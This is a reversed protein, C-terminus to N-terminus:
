KGVPKTSCGPFSKINKLIGPKVKRLAEWQVGNKTFLKGPSLDNLSERTEAGPAGPRALQVSLCSIACRLNPEEDSIKQRPFNKLIYSDECEVPRLERRKKSSKDLQFMGVADSNIPNSTNTGCSSEDFALAMLVWIWFREKEAYSLKKEYNPCYLMVDMPPTKIFHGSMVSKPKKGEEPKANSRNTTFESFFELARKGTVGLSCDNKFFKECAASPVPCNPNIKYGNLHDSTNGCTRPASLSEFSDTLTQQFELVDSPELIEDWGGDTLDTPDAFTEAFTSNSASVLLAFFLIFLQM